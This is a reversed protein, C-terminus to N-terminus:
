GPGAYLLKTSLIFRKVAVGPWRIVGHITYKYVVENGIALVIIYRTCRTCSSKGCSASQRIPLTRYQLRLNDRRRNTQTM